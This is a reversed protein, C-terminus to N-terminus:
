SHREDQDRKWWGLLWAAAEVTGALYPNGDYGTEAKEGLVAAARIALRVGPSNTKSLVLRRADALSEDLSGPEPPRLPPLTIPTANVYGHRKM